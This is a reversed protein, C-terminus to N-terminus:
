RLITRGRRPHRRGSAAPRPVHTPGRVRVGVRAGARAGVRVRVRVRFRAGVRARVRARVRVEIRVLHSWVLRPRAPAPM